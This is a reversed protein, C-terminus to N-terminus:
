FFVIRQQQKSKKIYDIVKEFNLEKNIMELLELACLNFNIKKNKM